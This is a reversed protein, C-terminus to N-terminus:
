KLMMYNDKYFKMFSSVLIKSPMPPPKPSLVRVIEKEMDVSLVCIFYKVNTVLLNENLKEAYSLGLISNILNPTIPVKVSELDKVDINRLDHITLDANSYRASSYIEIDSFKVDFTYPTSPVEISGYFYRWMLNTKIHEKEFKKRFAFIGKQKPIYVVEVNSPVDNKLKLFLRKNNVVFVVDPEFVRAALLIAWYGNKQIWNFADIIVGSYFADLKEVILQKKVMKALQKILLFYLKTNECPHTYGFLYVSLAQKFFGESLHSPKEVPFISVTGPVSSSNQFVDLDVFLPKRGMRIAYNLLFHCFTSKGSKASGVVLSIPGKRSTSDALLRQEQLCAHVNVSIMILSDKKICPNFVNGTLKVKCGQWSFLSISSFPQFTYITNLALESGFIEAYGRLLEISAMKERVVFRLEDEVGLNYVSSTMIDSAKM